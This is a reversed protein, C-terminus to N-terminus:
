GDPDVARSSPRPIRSTPAASQGELLVLGALAVKTKPAKLRKKM